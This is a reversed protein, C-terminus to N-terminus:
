VETAELVVYVGVGSAVATIDLTLVQGATLGSSSFSTTSGMTNTVDLTAMNTTDKQIRISCTGSDTFAWLKIATMNQPV